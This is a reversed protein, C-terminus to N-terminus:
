GPFLQKNEPQCEWQRTCPVRLLLTLPTAGIMESLATMMVAASRVGFKSQLESGDYGETVMTVRLPSADGLLRHCQEPGGLQRQRCVSIRGM